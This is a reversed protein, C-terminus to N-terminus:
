PRRRRNDEAADSWSNPEDNCRAWVERSLALGFGRARASVAAIQEDAGPCAVVSSCAGVLCCWCRGSCCPAPLSCSSELRAGGRAASSHRAGLGLVEWCGRWSVKSREEKRKQTTGHELAPPPPRAFIFTRSSNFNSLQCGPFPNGGQNGEKRRWSGFLALSM